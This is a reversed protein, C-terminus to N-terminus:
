LCKLYMARGFVCSPCSPEVETCLGQGKLRMKSREKLICFNWFYHTLMNNGRPDKEESTCISKQMSRVKEIDKEIM